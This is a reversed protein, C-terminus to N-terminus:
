LLPRLKANVLQVFLNIRETTHGDFPFYRTTYYEFAIDSLCYLIYEKLKKSQKSFFAAFDNTAECFLKAAFMDQMEDSSGGDEYLLWFWKKLLKDDKYKLWYKAFEERALDYVNDHIVDILSSNFPKHHIAKLYENFGQEIRNKKEQQTLHDFQVIRSTDVYATGSICYEIGDRDRAIACAATIKFQGVGGPEIEFNSKASIIGTPHNFAETDNVIIKSANPKLFGTRVNHQTNGTLTITTLLLTLLTATKM